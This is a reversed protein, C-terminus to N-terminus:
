GLLRQQLRLPVRTRQRNLLSAWHPVNALLTTARRLQETRTTEARVVLLFGDARRFFPLGDGAELVPPMDVVVHDFENCVGALIREIESRDVQGTTANAINGAPLAIPGSQDIPVLVQEISASGQLVEIFGPQDTGVAASRNGMWSLDVWCVASDRRAALVVALAQAASTVGEGKKCSTVAIVHPTPTGSVEHFDVLHRVSDRMVSSLSSSSRDSGCFDWMTTPSDLQVSEPPDLERKTATPDDQQTGSNLTRAM